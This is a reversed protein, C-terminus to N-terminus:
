SFFPSCFPDRIILINLTRSGHGHLYQLLLSKLAQGHASESCGTLNLKLWFFCRSGSWLELIRPFRTKTVSFLIGPLENAVLGVRCLRTTARCLRRADVHPLSVKMTYDLITVEVMFLCSMAFIGKIYDYKM